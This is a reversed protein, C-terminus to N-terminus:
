GNNAGEKGVPNQEHWECVVSIDSLTYEGSTIAPTAPLHAVYQANIKQCDDMTAGNWLFMAAVLKGKLYIVSFLKM